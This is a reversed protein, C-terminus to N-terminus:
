TKEAYSLEKINYTHNLIFKEISSLPIRKHKKGPPLFFDLEGNAILFNVYSTRLKLLKATEQISYTILSSM